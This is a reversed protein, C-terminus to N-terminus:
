CVKRSISLKRSDANGINRPWMEQSAAINSAYPFSLTKQKEKKKKMTLRRLFVDTKNGINIVLM